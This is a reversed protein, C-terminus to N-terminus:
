LIYGLTLLGRANHRSKTYIYDFNDKFMRSKRFLWKELRSLFDNNYRLFVYDALIKGSVGRMEWKFCYWVTFDKCISCLEM